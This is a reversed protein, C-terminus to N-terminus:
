TRLTHLALLVYELRAAGSCSLENTCTTLILPRPDDFAGVPVQHLVRVLLAVGGTLDDRAFTNAATTLLRDVDEQPELVAALSRKVSEVARALATAPDDRVERLLQVFSHEDGVLRALTLALELRAGENETEALLSLLQQTAETAQLSGLASAYAMQLGKDPEHDLREALVSAMETDGLAGLARASHAQISRYESNLSQRLAEIAHEDGSRGLAWAAVVSLAVETGHLVGILAQTLRPDPPMHAISVIAEFRVHFRPDELAQLLEDVTLPSHAKALQETREVTAREGRALHYRIISTMAAFPNGRFFIGAFEGVELTDAVKIGRILPIAIVPLLVAAAFLPTYADLPLWLLRGHLGQGADLLWGGALQSTGTVAGSGAYYIAMYDSKRARPVIDGFLLRASGIGWSLGLAGQVVAIGLAFYLSTDSDRPMIWYLIPALIGLYAGSLMVPKSGYRDAAWGWLYSSLLGGVLTGNQLLVINGSTLGVQEQMYLPLFSTLATTALTILAVGQMYRMFDRDRIAETLGRRSEHEAEEHEPAGGPVFSVLWVSVLGFVVGVGILVLYGFLGGSRGLVYGAATVALFGSSATVINNTATYKGRVTDPVYEQSWPYHATMAVSRLLAFIAVVSTVFAVTLRPGAEFLVWPTLLLFATVIKRAGMFTVYTRKYGFRAVTPAILLAILGSFPLLSLVFGTQSKSLGLANLFLVFVSGFFTFQAFVTNAANSAVSWRLGGLKEITTPENSTGPAAELLSSDAGEHTTHDPMCDSSDEVHRVDSHVM